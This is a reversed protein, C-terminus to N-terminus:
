NFYKKFSYSKLKLGHLFHGLFNSQKTAISESLLFYDNNKGHNIRGYFEGGLNEIDSIKFNSKISLLIIKKKSTLEFVLLNKKLDLSKILDSVYTFEQESLFKKLNNINYKENTFLVLNASSAESIKKQYNINISM